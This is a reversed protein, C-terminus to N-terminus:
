TKRTMAKSSPADFPFILLVYPPLYTSDKTRWSFIKLHTRHHVLVTILTASEIGVYNMTEKQIQTLDLTSRLTSIRETELRSKPNGL